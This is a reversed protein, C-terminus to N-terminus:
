KRSDTWKLLYREIKTTGFTIVTVVIGIFILGSIVRPYDGFDGFNRIYWGVGSNAGILEAAALM